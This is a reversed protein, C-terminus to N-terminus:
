RRQSLTSPGTVTTPAGTTSPAHHRGSELPEIATWVWDPQQEILRGFRVRHEAKETSV